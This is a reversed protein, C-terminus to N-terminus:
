GCVRPKVVVLLAAGALAPVIWMALSTAQRVWRETEAREVRFTLRAGEAGGPRAGLVVAYVGPETDDPLELRLGFARSRGADIAVEAPVARLWRRAVGPLVVLRFTTSVGRDNRITVAPLRYSRGPRLGDVIRIRRVELPHREGAVVVEARVATDPGASLAVGVAVLAAAAAALVAATPRSM